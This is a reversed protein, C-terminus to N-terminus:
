THIDISTPVFQTVDGKNKIIERIVTSHISAFPPDTFLLITEVESSMAKNMQAITREYEFDGVSRLGRLLYTAKNKRCFEVTLGDYIEVKVNAMTSFTQQAWHLRKEIPFMSQKTTNNGIAVIIEDFLQAARLVVNEHGRTIPDFSGPFVAIRKM